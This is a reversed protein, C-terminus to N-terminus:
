RKRRNIRRTRRNGGSFLWGAIGTAATTASSSSAAGRDIERRAIRDIYEELNRPNLTQTYVTCLIRGERKPPTTDQIKMVFGINTMFADYVGSPTGITTYDKWYDITNDLSLMGLFCGNNIMLPISNTGLLVEHKEVGGYGSVWAVGVTDKATITVYTFSNNIFSMRFNRFINLNGSVELNPSCALFTKDAFRWTQGPQIVIEAISGEL